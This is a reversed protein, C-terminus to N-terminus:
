YVLLYTLSVVFIALIVTIAILDRVIKISIKRRTMVPWYTLNVAGIRDPKPALFAPGHGLRQISTCLGNAYVAAHGCGAQQDLDFQDRSPFM